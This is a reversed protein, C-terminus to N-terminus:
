TPNVFFPKTEFVDLFSRRNMGARLQRPRAHGIRVAGAADALRAALRELLPNGVFVVFIRALL